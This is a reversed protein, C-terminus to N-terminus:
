ERLHIVDAARVDILAPPQTRPSASVPRVQLAGDASLTEATGLIQQDNAFLVKVQRGLTACRALYAQRLRTSGHSQLEDLCQELECLLQALLRNRDIPQPVTEILSAAIPRLDEPFSQLPVNVNLGIGIIVIPGNTTTMTSECLIGGVKRDQLLLDNPWKLALPATTSHRTAEAVALATVLPIWSLWQALPVTRSKRRVVISCYINYGPPSFWTRGHRGYGGSQQEAAVVTGHAAGQQALSSAERNTSPLDQYLYLIQGLATTALTSRIAEINLPASSAM